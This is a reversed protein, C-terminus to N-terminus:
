KAEASYDLVVLVQGGDVMDGPAVRVESVSGAAEALLRTEMKMAELIVLGDGANVSDGPRVLVQTIKGPMPASVEPSAVSGVQHSAAVGSEPVFQYVEGGVAVFRERGNHILHVLHADGDVVLRLTAEDIWQAEVRQERGGVAVRYGGAETHLDVVLHDQNHKLGIRM